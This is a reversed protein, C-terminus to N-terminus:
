KKVTFYGEVEDHIHDHWHFSGAQNLTITLSQGKSLLREAVGDYPVHHEHPGFAVERIVADDNTITLTDCLKGQIKDDSVKSNTIVITHRAVTGSGQCTSGASHGSMLGIGLALVIVVVIFIGLAISTRRNM